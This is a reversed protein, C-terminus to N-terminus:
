CPWACACACSCPMPVTAGLVLVRLTTTAINRRSSPKIATAATSSHPWPRYATCPRAASQPSHVACMVVATRSKPPGPAPVHSYALPPKSPFPSSSPCNWCNWRSPGLSGAALAPRCCAPGHDEGPQRQDVVTGHSPISACSAQFAVCHHSASWITRGKACIARLLSLSGIARPGRAM